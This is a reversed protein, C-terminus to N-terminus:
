ELGKSVLARHIERRVLKRVNRTIREGLAGQLEQRLIDGVMLRLADEDILADNGYWGDAADEGAPSTEAQATADVRDSQAQPDAAMGAAAIAEADPEPMDATEAEIERWPLPEVDSAALSEQDGDDPEWDEAQEAVAAQLTELKSSLDAGDDEAVIGAPRVAEVDAESPFAESRDDLADDPTEAAEVDGLPTGADLVVDEIQRDNRDDLAPEDLATETDTVTDAEHSVAEEDTPEVATFSTEDPTESITDDQGLELGDAEACDQSLEAQDTVQDDDALDADEALDSADVLNADDIQESMSALDADDTQEFLVALEADDIEDPGGALDADESHDAEEALEAADAPDSGDTVESADALDIDDPRDDEEVQSSEDAVEVADSVSVHEAHEDDDRLETNEASEPTEVTARPRLAEFFKLVGPSKSASVDYVRPAMEAAAAAESPDFANTLPGVEPGDNYQSSTLTHDGEDHDALTDAVDGGTEVSKAGTLQEAIEEAIKDAIDSAIEAAFADVRENDGHSDSYGHSNSDTENYSDAEDATDIIRDGDTEAARSETMEEIPDEGIDSAAPTAKAEANVEEDLDPVDDKLADQVDQKAEAIKDDEQVDNFAFAVDEMPLPEDDEPEFSLFADDVRQSPTLVM